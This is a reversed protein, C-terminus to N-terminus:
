DSIVFDITASPINVADVKIKLTDGVMLKQGTKVNKQSLTGDFIFKGKASNELNVFGDITNDLEVFIGRPLVSSIKGTFEEGIFKAMYEAMYYKETDREAKVARVEDNSSLFSVEKVFENYKLNIKEIDKKAVLDSLIRHITTDPYRRIPSTFHCYNKLSLGFHGLPKEFYRAKSMARLVQDSVLTSYQTNKAKNLLTVFHSPKPQTIASKALKFGLIEVLVSLNRVREPDPVEHVRYVFPINTNRALTAAAENALIMFNEIIKESEGVERREVDICVGNEDLTFKAESSDLDLMGRKKSKQTLLDSLESAIKISDLVVAYKSLLDKNTSGNLIENIESYVGRVKSNIVSKKFEFSLLNGEVDLEMIASFTLRDEGATLSCIGNSIKKPFMPIVRDAFYVSTGRQRAELDLVSDKKIYHSVDAIHVGLEWGDKNKKISIADDLDKADSGDITFIQESRLDLRGVLDKEKIGDKFIKKASDLAENSFINPINNEDIVADACIKASYSKGYIKVVKACLQNKNKERCLKVQVKDSESIGSARSKKIPIEYQYGFDAVFYLGRMNKVVTGTVPRNESSVIREVIGHPGKGTDKIGNIMVIDNVMANLSKEAPIYLDKGGLLPRAFLFGKCYTIIKAPVFGCVSPAMYKGKNNEVLKAEAKLEKVAKKFADKDLAGTASYAEKPSVSRNQSSIFELLKEKTNLVIM